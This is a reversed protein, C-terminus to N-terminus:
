FNKKLSISYVTALETRDLEETILQVLGFSDFHEVAQIQHDDIHEGQRSLRPLVVPCIGINLLNLITGIGGHCIVIDVQSAIELLEDESFESKSFGNLQHGSTTGYQWIVEDSSNTVKQVTNILRDFRFKSTGVIVLIRLGDKIDLIKKPSAIFRNLISPSFEWRKSFNQNHPTFRRVSPFVGLVKGTMSPKTVRTLSEFYLYNKRSMFHIGIASFAIAAGTSIIVDFDMKRGISILKPISLVSKLYDRSNIPPVFYHQRNALLSRSQENAHTIFISETSLNFIEAVALAETLHGGASSIILAKKESLHSFYNQPSSSMESYYLRYLRQPLFKLRFKANIQSLIEFSISIM